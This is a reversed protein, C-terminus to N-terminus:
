VIKKVEQDTISTKIEEKQQVTNATIEYSYDVKDLLKKNNVKAKIFLTYFFIKNRLDYYNSSINM